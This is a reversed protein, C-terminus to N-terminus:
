LRDNFGQGNLCSAGENQAANVVLTHTVYCFFHAQGDEGYVLM